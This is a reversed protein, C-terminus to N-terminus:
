STRLFRSQDAAILDDGVLSQVLGGIRQCAPEQLFAELRPITYADVPAIGDLHHIEVESAELRAQDRHRDVVAHLSGLDGIDQPVGLSAQAKALGRQRRETHLGGSTTGIQLANVRLKWHPVMPKLSRQM